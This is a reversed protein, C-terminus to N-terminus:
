GADDDDRLKDPYDSLRNNILALWKQLVPGGSFFLGAESAMAEVIRIAEALDTRFFERSTNLRRHALANHVLREVEVCDAVLLFFEVRYPGPVGSAASLEIARRFPIATSQGIKLLGPMAENSLVYIFGITEAKM